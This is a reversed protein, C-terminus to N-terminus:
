VALGERLMTWMDALAAPPRRVLTLALTRAAGQESPTLYDVPSKGDVRALMLCGVHGHVYSSPGSFGLPVGAHYADVFALTCREYADVAEPRHIAKLLLHNLLFAVDFAPDGVHAVEFDIVWLGDDGLLVNKPSFDGHVLCRHTTVLRDVYGAIIPSLAPHRAMTTRYYPDVRLQDFAETDDFRAAVGPDDRTVAHWAALATGLRAAVRPDGDGDLLRAKWDVWDAPAREITITFAPLDADLVAPVVGPTVGAAWRLAAAETTIREQKALWEEAVRLQPLAQKVVVHRDGADVALVVNSVGGGLSVAPAEIGDPILGRRIVYAGVTDVTLLAVPEARGSMEDRM